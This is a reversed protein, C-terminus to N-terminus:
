SGIQRSIFSLLETRVAGVRAEAAPYLSVSAATRLPDDQMVAFSEIIYTLAAFSNLFQLHLGAANTPVELTVLKQEVETLAVVLAKLEAAATEDKQEMIRAVLMLEHTSFSKTPSFADFLEAKYRAYRTPSNDVTNPFQGQAYQRPQVHLATREVLTQIMREREATKLAGAQKLTLYSGFLERAVKDTATLEHEPKDTSGPAASSTGTGPGPVRPDRGLRVEEGDSMGDGDTDPNKLDTGWLVEEWDYLGDGDTDEELMRATALNGVQAALRANSEAEGAGGDARTYLHYLGAVLVICAFTGVSAIFLPSPLYREFRM